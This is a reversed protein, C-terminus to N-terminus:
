ECGRSKVEYIKYCGDKGVALYGFSPCPMAYATWPKPSQKSESKKFWNKFTM